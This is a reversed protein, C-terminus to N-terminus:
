GVRVASIRGNVTSTGTSFNNQVVLFYTPTGSTTVRFCPVSVDFTSASGAIVIQAYADGATGVITNNTTSINALVITSVGTFVFHAMCTIDWVGPTLAINTISTPSNNAPTQGTVVSSIREGIYGAAPANGARLGQLVGTTTQTTTNVTYSSGTFSLGSYQITGAGTIANTNTSNITMLSAIASTGSGISIASATGSSIFSNVFSNTAGTGATTIATTNISSTDIGSNFLTITGTSSTTLALNVGSNSINVRCASTSNATVANGTNTLVSTSIGLSGTSTIVWMAIGTTGINGNCNIMNISSSSSSSTYSIGTNNLANLYCNNLNVVSAASGTVALFFNSNTQLRIGSITVTGATTMTCTGSIIVHNIDQDCGFATLNVGAVLTINETYTGPAIFITDGSSAVALAATITTHTGSGSTPNVMWKAVSFLDDGTQITAM